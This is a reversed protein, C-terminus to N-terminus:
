IFAGVKKFLKTILFLYNLMLNSVILDDSFMVKIYKGKANKIAVNLNSSSNLAKSRIHKKSFKYQKLINKFLDSGSSDSVIVEFNKFYQSNISDLLEIFYIQGEQGRDHVPIVFSFYHNNSSMQTLKLLQM